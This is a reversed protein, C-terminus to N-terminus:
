KGGYYVDSQAFVGGRRDDTLQLDFRRDSYVGGRDRVVFIGRRGWGVGIAKTLSIVGTDADVGFGDCSFYCEYRYGGFGRTATLTVVAGTYDPSVVYYYPSFPLVGLLELREYTGGVFAVTVAVITGNVGRRM